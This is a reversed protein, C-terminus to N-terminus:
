SYRNCCFSCDLLIHVCVGLIGRHSVEVLGGVLSDDTVHRKRTVSSYSSVYILTESPLNVALYSVAGISTDVTRGM